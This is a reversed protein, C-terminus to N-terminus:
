SDLFEFVSYEYTIWALGEKKTWVKEPLVYIQDEMKKEGIGAEVDAGEEPLVYIQDELKWVLM